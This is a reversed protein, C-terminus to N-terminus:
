SLGGKRGQDRDAQAYSSRSKNHRPTPSSGARCPAPEGRFMCTKNPPGAGASAAPSLPM